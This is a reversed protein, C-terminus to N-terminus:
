ERLGVAELAEERSLFARGRLVKRNSLVFVVALRAEIPVGSGKGTAYFRFTALVTDQDVDLIEDAEARWEEWEDAMDSLYRRIGDHGRYTETELPAAARIYECSPDWLAPVAEKAAELDVSRNRAIVQRVVEVNERM